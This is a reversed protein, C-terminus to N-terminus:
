DGPSERLYPSIFELFRLESAELGHRYIYRSALHSGILAHLYAQPLRRAITDLGVLELLARPCTELLVQHQLGPHDVLTSAQIENDLRNIRDSLADTLDCRPMGTREHERWICELELEANDEIRRQVQKVYRGYFESPRDYRVEMHQRFQQDSMVLGALVELSSSTVGGKNASADKFLVVGGEELERRAPQTLFLNAGEVVVRFRPKGNEFLECVNNIHISDPRGGCPVFLDAHALPDLHFANRFALGSEIQRGGPLTIDRQDLTVVFGGPGLKDRAFGEITARAEALRRLEGRDLGAPDYAVGSGDVIAITRDHSILIENSGLDGDPGGTQVKTVDEESLGLRKLTGLVFRHVSRTTMGYRDHPIGGWRLSKGTTFAKWYRYGRDRAHLSAWDMLEATGEDPGLFLIEESGYHDATEENPLLVDLLSDVYKKFAAEAYDQRDADLLIAGKSGGEAIDKNKSQQTHSLQYVENFLSDSNRTYAQQNASRVIRIGGRAIDRFRVHFGIFESGIVLFIGHPKDPYEVDPLFASDLRFSVATKSDRYFNTKQVHQNFLLFASLIQQDLTSSVQKRIQQELQEGHTRDFPAPEQGPATFHHASFDDYLRKVLDLNREIAELIRLETFADKSLRQKFQALLGLRLPDNAFAPALLQYERSYRTLFQHAFRWAARTYVLQQASLTGKRFLPTLESQPMIYVLSLDEHIQELLKQPINEDVHISFIVIGNRFREIYKRRSSVDYNDLLDSIASFFFHTSGERFALIFQKTGLDPRDHTDIVLGLSKSAKEIAAAYRRKTPESARELLSVPAIRKLDTEGPEVPEDDAYRPRTLFYLRLQSGPDDPETAAVSHYSQLRHEPYRKEIRREIKVAVAHEERCAYIGMDDSESEHHLNIREGSARALVKAAYLSKIHSAILTRPTVAFYHPGLGLESYFWHMEQLLTEGTFVHEGELLRYVETVEELPVRVDGAITDLQADIHTQEM